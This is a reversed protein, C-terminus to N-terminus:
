MMTVMALKIAQHRIKNAKVKNKSSIINISKEINESTKILKQNAVKTTKLKNKSKLGSLKKNIYKVFM